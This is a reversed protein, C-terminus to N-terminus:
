EYPEWDKSLIENVSFSSVEGRIHENTVMMFHEDKIYVRVCDAWYTLRVSVGEKMIGLATSFDFTKTHKGEM